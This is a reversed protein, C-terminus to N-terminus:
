GRADADKPEWTGTGDSSGPTSSFSAWLIFVLLAFAILGFIAMMAAPIVNLLLTYIGLGVIVCIQRMTDGVRKPQRLM